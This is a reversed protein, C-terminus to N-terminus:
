SPLKRADTQLFANKQLVHQMVYTLSMTNAASEDMKNKALEEVSLLLRRVYLVQAEKSICDQEAPTRCRSQPEMMAWSNRFWSQPFINGGHRRNLDSILDICDSSVREM